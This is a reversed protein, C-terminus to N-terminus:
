GGFQLRKDSKLMTELNPWHVDNMTYFANLYVAVEEPPYKALLGAVAAELKADEVTKPLDDVAGDKHPIGLANLFDALMATQQKLLWDRLLNASVLELRPKALMSAMEAHRTARPTRELFIPRVKRSEAVAALATKYLDRNSDHIFEIIRAALGPSM